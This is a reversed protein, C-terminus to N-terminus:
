QINITEGNQVAQEPVDVTTTTNGYSVTYKGTPTVDSSYNVGKMPESAYPVTIAYAGNADATASQTYTFPRDGISLGLSATVTTGAPATGHLTAGKVVEYTKVFKVPPRSDYFFESLSGDESLSAPGRSSNYWNYAITYNTNQLYNDEYPVVKYYKPDYQNLYAHKTSMYYSGPSEYVLRFHEMGSCDGYYLQSMMTSNYKQSDVNLPVSYASTLSLGVSTYYSSYPENAWVEIAPFKTTAMELDIMVYKSGLDQLNRYGDAETTALFFKCSGDTGNNELIGAQFPNANPARHAVYEIDHGYDWWSMVGYASSPYDLWTGNKDFNKVYSGSAYNFDSQVPTGQPDPTNDRLWTLSSFWDYGMGPGGISAQYLTMGGLFSNKYQDPLQGASFSTAPYAIIYLFVVAMVAFLIVSIINKSLFETMDQMNKVKSRFGDAFKEWDFARFMAVALFGTLLAANVAFYYTFRIQSCTAWLMVLNWVMFLLVAPRNTKLSRFALLILAAASAVITWYFMDWLKDLTFTMSGDGNITYITPSAEAVTLMGGRPLFVNFGMMTLSFLQPLIIYAVLMGVVAIGALTVPFTWPEAKSNKLVKSVAYIAGIGVLALLLFVPQTLSYQMLELSMNGLSYPLVMVAPIVYLIAAIFVLYELSEGRFHDIVSQAAFYAFLMFGVLLAGPWVLMYCGFAVGALAAFGLAKFSEKDRAKIKEIHLGAKKAIDLAYVLFAVTTVSFLVEAIHHDTFGLMSRGLFQGPILALTAVALIGANRGFLRKGMFYVPLACLAALIVPTYAGVTDVLQSSPSGLGVLLSAGAIMLTFLPGFHISSGFPFHTFPDFMVRDPFHELTNHVLRMQMVADDAAVNVYGGDWNTFVSGYTPVARIYIMLAMFLIILLPYIWVGSQFYAVPDFSRRPTDVAAANAAPAAQVSSNSKGATVPQQGVNENATSSAAQSKVSEGVVQSKQDAKEKRAQKGGKVSKAM